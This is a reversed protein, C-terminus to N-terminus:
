CHQYELEDRYKPHPLNILIEELSNNGLHFDNIELYCKECWQRIKINPRKQCFYCKKILILSDFQDDLEEIITNAFEETSKLYSIYDNLKSFICNDQSEPYEGSYKIYVIPKPMYKACSNIYGLEYLVNPNNHAYKYKKPTDNSLGISDSITVETDPTLDVIYGDAEIITDIINESLPKNNGGNKNIIKYKKNKLVLDAILEMMEESVTNRTSHAYFILKVM